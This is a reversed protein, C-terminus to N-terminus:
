KRDSIERVGIASTTAKPAWYGFARSNNGFFRQNHRHAGADLLALCITGEAPPEPGATDPDSAPNTTPRKAPKADPKPAPQPM